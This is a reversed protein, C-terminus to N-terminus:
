GPEYADDEINEDEGFDILAEVVSMASIIDSRMSEYAHRM